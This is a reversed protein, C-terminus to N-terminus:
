KYNNPRLLHFHTHAARWFQSYDNMKTRENPLLNWTKAGASTFCAKCNKYNIKPPTIKLSVSACTNHNHLSTVTKFHIGTDTLCHQHVRIVTLFKVVASFHTNHNHSSAVTTFYIGTDTLCHLFQHIRIVTLFKVITLRSLQQICTFRRAKDDIAKTDPQIIHVGRDQLANISSIHLASQSNVWM